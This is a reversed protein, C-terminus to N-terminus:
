NQHCTSWLVIEGEEVAMHSLPSKKKTFSSKRSRTPVPRPRQPAPFQFTPPGNSTIYITDNPRARVTSAPFSNRQSPTHSRGLITAISEASRESSKLSPPSSHSVFHATSSARSSSRSSECSHYVSHRSSVSSQWSTARKKRAVAIRAQLEEPRITTPQVGLADQKAHTPVHKYPPAPPKAQELATTKKHESAADKAKKFKTFLPM